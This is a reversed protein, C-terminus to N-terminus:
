SQLIRATYLKNPILQVYVMMCQKSLDMSYFHKTEYLSNALLDSSSRCWLMDPFSWYRCEREINFNLYFYATFLHFLLKLLKAIKLFHNLLHWLLTFNNRRDYCLSLNPFVSGSSLNSPWLPPTAYSSLFQVVFWSTGPKFRLEAM